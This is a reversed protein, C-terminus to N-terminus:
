HIRECGSDIAVKIHLVFAVFAVHLAESKNKFHSDKEFIFVNNKKLKVM